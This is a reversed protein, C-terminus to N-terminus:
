APYHTARRTTRTDVYPADTIIAGTAPVASRRQAYLAEAQSQAHQQMDAVGTRTEAMSACGALTTALLAVTAIGIQRM